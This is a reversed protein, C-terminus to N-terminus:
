RSSGGRRTPGLHSRSSFGTEFAIESIPLNTEILLKEARQPTHEDLYQHSPMGFTLTFARIFHSPSMRSIRALDNTSLVKRVPQQKYIGGGEDVNAGSLRRHTATSSIVKANSYNRLLYVGFVTLLADLYLPNSSSSSVENAMFKAIRMAQLDVHGFRPPRLEWDAGELETSALDAYAATGFAVVAVNM